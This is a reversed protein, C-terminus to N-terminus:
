IQIDELEEKEKFTITFRTGQTRDLEISGDLQRVLANVLLFGLSDTNNVDFGDPLGSGNDSVMIAHSSNESKAVVNIEGKRGNQFAYKLANSVLENIILGCPIILDVGFSVGPASVNMKVDAANIHYSSFLDRALTEVYASFDINTFDRTQYLKEHIRAMSNIRDRCEKFMNRSKEDEVYKEQLGLLSTVVNMNNKVRHHIEKLLVEKEGLSRKVQEEAKKREAIEKDLEDRSATVNKLDQKMRNFSDALQGIEDKSDIDVVSDLDGKGIKDTAARVMELPKTISKTLHFAFIVVVFVVIFMLFYLTNFAFERTIEATHLFDRAKLQASDGLAEIADEIKGVHRAEKGKTIDAAEIRKGERMLSIAEDRIPKWAIFVALAREHKEKKGLFREDIIEFDEFVKKELEDVIRASENISEINEALVVDKMSLHIKIIHTNIRLVANSVALPHRYMKATQDSLLFMDNIAFLTLSLLLLFILVFGVGLRSGIRINKLV